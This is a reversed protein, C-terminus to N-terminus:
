GEDDTRCKIQWVGVSDMGLPPFTSRYWYRNGGIIVFEFGRVVDYDQQLLTLVVYAPVAVGFSEIKGEADVYEVACPVKVSPPRTYTPEAEPAFPIGSADAPATNDVTAPFYFTPQDESAPPLGLSMAFHIGDIFDQPDFNPDTKAM